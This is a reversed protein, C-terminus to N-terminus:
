DKVIPFEITFASGRGRGDSMAHISGSHLEVLRKSIALGLGLGGDSASKNKTHNGQAFASFSNDLEEPTMGIGSDTITVSFTSNSGTQFSEICIRGYEPTFKVANRLVNWFVQQLRVSDASVLHQKAKLKVAIQIRKKQIQDQVTQLAERLVGHADVTRMKLNLKGHTIRSHDLLEDILQAEVEINKLIIEFQGRINPPLASDAAADSAILLAPNLPTRLEHSLTALFQDKVRMASEAEQRAAQEREFSKRDAEFARATTVAATIQSVVLSIFSQYPERWQRFPNLAAIVVGARGGEPGVTLPLVVARDPPQAWSGHPLDSYNSLDVIRSANSQLVQAVPWPADDTPAMAAPAVPHDDSIGAACRLVLNKGAADFLYILVFPLDKHNTALAAKMRHCVDEANRANASAAMELLLSIRRQGIVRLTDDTNACIIGGIGNDDQIPTFSYTYYTEERFGHRQMILLQEEVYIGEPGAMARQLVPDNQDRLEPWVESVPKGLASPHRGGIIAKYPDNYLYTLEAGWGVWIPQRSALMIQVPTVLCQPWYEVAGLPTKSWNFNRIREGMEGGGSFIRSPDRSKTPDHCLFPAKSNMLSLNGM